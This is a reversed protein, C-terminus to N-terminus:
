RAKNHKRKKINVGELKTWQLNAGELDAGDFNAGELNAGELNAGELNAEKLIANSLNAHRINVRYDEEDWLREGVVGKSTIDLGSLDPKVDPNDKRWQNWHKVGKKLEALHEENAM